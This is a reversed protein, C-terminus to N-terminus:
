WDISMLEQAEAETIDYGCTFSRAPYPGTYTAWRKNRGLWIIRPLHRSPGRFLAGDNEIYGWSPDDFVEPDDVGTLDGAVRKGQPQRPISGVGSM